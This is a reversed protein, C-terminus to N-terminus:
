LTLDVRSLQQGDPIFNPTGHRQICGIKATSTMGQEKPRRM